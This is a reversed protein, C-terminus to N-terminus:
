LMLLVKYRVEFRFTLQLQFINFSLMTSNYCSSSVLFVAPILFSHTKSLSIFQGLGSFSDVSMAPIGAKWTLFYAVFNHKNLLCDVCALNLLQAQLHSQVRLCLHFLLANECLHFSFAKVHSWQMTGLLYNILYWESNSMFTWTLNLNCIIFKESPACM